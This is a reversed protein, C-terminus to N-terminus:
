ARFRPVQLAPSGHVDQAAVRQVLHSISVALRVAKANRDHYQVEEHVGVLTDFHEQVLRFLPLRSPSSPTASLAARRGPSIGTFAIFCGISM